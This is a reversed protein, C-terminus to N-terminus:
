PMMRKVEVIEVVCSSLYDIKNQNTHSHYQLPYTYTHPSVFASLKTACDNMM